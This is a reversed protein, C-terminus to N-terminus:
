IGTEGSKAHLRSKLDACSELVRCSTSGVAIIRRGEKKYQNLRGAVSESLTFFESHMNHDEIKEAKVPAFTGLGVHLIVKEM